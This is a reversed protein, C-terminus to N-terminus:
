IVKQVYVSLMFLMTSIRVSNNYIWKLEFYVKQISGCLMKKEYKTCLAPKYLACKFM